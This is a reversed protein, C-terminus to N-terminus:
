QIGPIRIGIIESGSTLSAAFFTGGGTTRCSLCKEGGRSSLPLRLKKKLAEFLEKEPPTQGGGGGGGEQHDSLYHLFKVKYSKKAAERVHDPYPGAM